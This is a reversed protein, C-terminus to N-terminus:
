RPLEVRTLLHVLRKVVVDPQKRLHELHDKELGARWSFLTRSAQLRVAINPHNLRAILLDIAEAVYDAGTTAHGTACSGLADLLNLQDNLPLTGPERLRGRLVQILEIEAPRERLLRKTFERVRGNSDLLLEILIEAPRLGHRRKLLSASYLKYEPAREALYTPIQSMVAEDPAMDFAQVARLASSLEMRGLREMARRALDRDADSGSILLSIANLRTETSYHFRAAPLRLTEEIPYEDTVVGADASESLYEGLQDPLMEIELCRSVLLRVLPSNPRQRQIEVVLAGIREKIDSTSRQEFRVLLELVRDDLAPISAREFVQLVIYQRLILVEDGLDALRALFDNLLRGTKGLLRDLYLLAGPGYPFEAICLTVAEIVSAIAASENVNARVKQVWHLALCYELLEDYVFSFTRRPGAANSINARLLGENQLNVHISEVSAADRISLSLSEFEISPQQRQWIQEAIRLLQDVVPAPDVFQLRDAVLRASTKVYQDFVVVNRLSDIRGLTQGRYAECFLRLLLPRSLARRADEGLEARIEYAELYAPIAGASERQDFDSLHVPRGEFLYPGLSHAFSEWFIDRCSLLLRIRLGQIRALFASLQHALTLPDLAENIGDIFIYMWANDAQLGRCVRPLWNLLQGPADRDLEEQVLTEIGRFSAPMGHGGFVLVASTQAMELAANLLVNTKGRGARDVLALCPQWLTVLQEKLQKILDNASVRKDGIKLSPLLKRIDGLAAGDSTQSRVRSRRYEEELITRAQAVESRSLYTLRRLRQQFHALHTQARAWDIASVVDYMAADVAEVEAFLFLRQLTPLWSEVEKPSTTALVRDRLETLKTVPVDLSIFQARICELHEFITAVKARYRAPAVVFRELESQAARRQVYLAPLYKRQSVEAIREQLRINCIERLTTSGIPASTLLGVGANLLIDHLSSRLLEVALRDSNRFRTPYRHCAELRKLHQQQALRQVPDLQYKPDRTAGEEPVAIILEKRHYLALWAEWQTYSLLTGQPQLFPDLIPFRRTFDHYRQQVFSVSPVPAMAGTMDGVLHVVAACRQIYDDLKELTEQGTTVFDEQVKVSINPRDLDHRLVDRYSGFEATVASLFLQISTPV